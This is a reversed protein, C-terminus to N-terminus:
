LMLMRVAVVVLLLAFLRKLLRVPLTHTLHAGLPATLLSAAAIAGAAPWHIYGTNGQPLEAAGLGAVLYAITGAIAIPLGCAASTAIANRLPTNCWLLFPTTLTGGGIGVLMSLSGIGTGAATMGAAGPLGRSPSPQLGLIMQLVILFVFAVFVYRLIDSGVLEAFAVGLAAGIVIGPTLRACVPWLIARHRQHGWISATATVAITALSTGLAMQMLADAAFGQATFMFVLVPVIVLGGGIGFLGALLGTGAGLLLYLLLTVLL